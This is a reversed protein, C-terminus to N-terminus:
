DQKENDSESTESDDEDIKKAIYEVCPQYEWKSTMCRVWTIWVFQVVAVVGLKWWFSLNPYYFDMWVPIGVANWIIGQWTLAKVLRHRANFEAKAKLKENENM